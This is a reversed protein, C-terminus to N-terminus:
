DFEPEGNLFVLPRLSLGPIKPGCILASSTSARRCFTTDGVGPPSRLLVWVPLRLWDALSKWSCGAAGTGVSGLFVAAFVSVMVVGFSGAGAVFSSGARLTGLDLADPAGGSFCLELVTVLRADFMWAVFLLAGLLGTDVVAAEM